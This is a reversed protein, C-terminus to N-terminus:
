EMRASPINSEIRQLKGRDFQLCCHCAQSPRSLLCQKLHRLVLLIREGLGNYRKM